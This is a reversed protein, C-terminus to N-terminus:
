RYVFIFGEDGDDSEPILLGDMSNIVKVNFDNPNENYIEEANDWDEASMEYRSAIYPKLAVWIIRTNPKINYKDIWENVDDIDYNEREEVEIEIFDNITMPRSTTYYQVNNVNKNVFERITTKIFKEDM